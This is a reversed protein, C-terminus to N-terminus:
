LFQKRETLPERAKSHFVGSYGCRGSECEAVYERTGSIKVTIATEVILGEGDGLKQLLPCLCQPARFHHQERYELLNCPKVRKDDADNVPRDFNIMFASDDVRLSCSIAGYWHFPKLEFDLPDFSLIISSKQIQFLLIERYSPILKFTILSNKSM